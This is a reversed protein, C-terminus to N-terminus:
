PTCGSVSMRRSWDPQIEVRFDDLPRSTLLLNYIFIEGTYSITFDGTGDWEGIFEEQAFAETATMVKTEYLDQGPFGITLTGATKVKCMFSIYFTPWKTTGDPMEVLGEPKRSLNANLQRITSNKICLALRNLVRVIGTIRDKESYLSDNM